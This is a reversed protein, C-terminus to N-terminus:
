LPSILNIEVTYYESGEVEVIYQNKVIEDIMGVHGQRFYNKGRDLIVDEVNEEFDSLKM